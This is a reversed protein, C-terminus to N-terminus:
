LHNDAFSDYDLAMFVYMDIESMGGILLELEREDFVNILEFPILEFFGERFAECQDKVRKHIRYEVVAEVYEKKNLETVPINAGDPRLEVTVIEGFRDETVTFDEDLVDTIDNERCTFTLLSRSPHSTYVWLMWTLGKHLEMDVSELDVLTTKKSLIM